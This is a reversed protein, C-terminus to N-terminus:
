GDVAVPEAKLRGRDDEVLRALPVEPDHEFVCLWGEEAALPLWRKKNELTTMPYLDYGMIWPYSVHAATPM